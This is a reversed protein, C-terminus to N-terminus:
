LRNREWKGSASSGEGATVSAAKESFVLHNMLTKTPDWCQASSVEVEYLNDLRHVAESNGRRPRAGRKSQMEEDEYHFVKGKGKYVNTTVRVSQTNTGGGTIDLSQQVRLIHAHRKTLDAHAIYQMAMCNDEKSLALFLSAFGPPAELAKSTSSKSAMSHDVIVMNKLVLAGKIEERNAERAKKQWQCIAQEHTLRQCYFCRKPLKEYEYLIAVVEGDPLTLNKAIRAMNAVNLNM